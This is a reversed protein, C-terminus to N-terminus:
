CDVVLWVSRAALLKSSAPGSTEMRCSAPSTTGLTSSLTARGWMGLAIVTLALSCKVRVPTTYRKGTATLHQPVVTATAHTSASLGRLPKTRAATEQEATPANRVATQQPDTEAHWAWEPQTPTPSPTRPRTHTATSPKTNTSNSSHTSASSSAPKRDYARAGIHTLGTNTDRPKGLFGKDDPWPGHQQPGRPAGFPTTYRKTPTFTGAEIAVNSTGHHDAALFSLKTGSTGSVATRVAITQGNATYYRTGSVTKTTGKVTLRVETNGFYLITDGDGSARRILLEGNADYLYGTQATGETM